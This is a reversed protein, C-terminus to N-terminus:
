RLLRQIKRLTESSEESAKATREAQKAVEATVELTAQTTELTEKQLTELRRRHQEEEFLNIAEKLNDARGGQLYKIFLGIATHNLYEEGLANLAWSVNDTQMFAELERTMANKKRKLPPINENRYVEAAQEAESQRIPDYFVSIFTLGISGIIAYRLIYWLTGDRQVNFLWIIGACIATLFIGVAKLYIPNAIEEAKKEADQIAKEAEQIKAYKEGIILLIKQIVKLSSILDGRPLEALNKGIVSEVAEIPQEEQVALKKEEMQFVLEM